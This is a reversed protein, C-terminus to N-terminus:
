RDGGIPKGDQPVVKLEPPDAFAPNTELLQSRELRARNIELTRRDIYQGEVLDLLNLMTSERMLNPEGDIQVLIRGIKWRDGEEIRYTVDVQNEAEIFRLDADVEAYIFGLSGYSYTIDNVDMTMDTQNFPMGEKLKLDNRLSEEAIFKNGVVHIKNVTYQPGEEILFTVSMWKLSEDYEIVRDVRATLYGLSRYYNTLTQKDSELKDFSAVNGMYRIVGLTPDRSEIIKALRGSSVISNGVFKISDIREKEGENIRFIVANPDPPMNEEPKGDFGVFAEIYVQSFGEEHYYDLLRRRTSEIAIPSIPDGKAIGARGKLERDTMALNGLFILNSILAHEEVTFTVVVGGPTEEVSERVRSFAQFENLRRVDALVKDYEYFGDRRTQLLETIRETPIEKNGVIRVETVVKDGSERRFKPGGKQMMLDRFKQKDPATPAGAGGGGMGGMQAFANTAFLCILLCGVTSVRPM